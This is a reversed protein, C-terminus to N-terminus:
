GDMNFRVRKFRLKRDDGVESGIRAMFLNEPRMMVNPENTQLTQFGEKAFLRVMMSRYAMPDLGTGDLDWTWSYGVMYFIRKERFPHDVIRHLLCRSIGQSRYARSVEVAAVEMMVKEGVRLWREGAAPFDLVALGVVRGDESFAVTVNSEKQSAIQVLTERRSIIPSYCAYEPFAGAMTLEQLQEQGCFSLITVRGKPTTLEVRKQHPHPM